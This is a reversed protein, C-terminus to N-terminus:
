DIENGQSTTPAGCIVTVIEKWRTRNEATRTTAGAFDMGTWEKINDGMMEKTQRKMEKRESHGTPYQSTM